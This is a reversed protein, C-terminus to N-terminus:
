NRSAHMNGPPQPPKSAILAIPAPAWFHKSKLKSAEINIFGAQALATVWEEATLMNSVATAEAWARTFGEAPLFYFFVLVRIFLRVSRYRWSPAAGVDAITLRGLPKLVRQMEGILQPIHMHHMALGCTIQEFSEDKFPMGMASACSLHIQGGREATRIKEDARRLMSPTIDLGVFRSSGPLSALRLPIVGTGTAIDLVLDNDKIETLDILYSVFDAYTWGWIRRLESDVTQEYKPAMETFARTIAKRSDM